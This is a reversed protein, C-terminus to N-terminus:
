GGLGISIRAFPGHFNRDYTKRADIGGDMAGFFFDARYGVSIKADSYRWSLGAFAGVNPVVVSHSRALNAPHHYASHLGTYITNAHQLPNVHYYSKYHLGTAHITGSVKQRGFLVAGNLGWDFSIGSEQVGVLIASADWSASPGLGHFSQKLNVEGLYRDHEQRFGYKIGTGSHFFRPMGNMGASRKDAFQAFRVGFSFVSLNKGFLGLGVDKGARFDLILHSENNTASANLHYPVAQTNTNTARGFLTKVRFTQLTPLKQESSKKGNSRGYRVGASFVWDSEQPAFRISGEGGVAYRSPLQMPLVPDFPLHYFDELFAPVYTQRGGDLREAQAGLDIWVTPHNANEDQADAKVAFSMALVLCGATTLL